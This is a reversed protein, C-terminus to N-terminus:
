DKSSAYTGGSLAKELLRRIAESRIPIDPQGRRWEDIATGLEYPIRLTQLPNQGTSPRGRKKESKIIEPSSQKM